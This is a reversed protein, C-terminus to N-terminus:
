DSSSSFGLRDDLCEGCRSQTAHGGVRSRLFEVGSVDPRVTDDGLQLDLQRPGTEALDFVTADLALHMQGRTETMVVSAAEGVASSDVVDDAVVRHLEDTALPELSDDDEVHAHGAPLIKM